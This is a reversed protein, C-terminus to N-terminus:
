TSIADLLERTYDRAILEAAHHCVANKAETLREPSEILSVLIGRLEDWNGPEFLWGTEGERVLEPVGGIRSAVVPLSHAIAEYIVSPSNEYCLTPLILCDVSRLMETLKERKQWGLFRIHPAKKNEEIMKRMLPGIGAVSLRCQEASLGRILAVLRDVGKSPVLQGIFVFHLPRKTEHLKESSAAFRFPNQLVKKEADRFFGKRAYFDLLFRSPSVVISTKKFLLRLIAEYGFWRAARHSIHKEEGYLILGSPTSLQVDHVVHVHRIRMYRLVLPTLFGFGMLNHTVVTDPKERRLISILVCASHVNFIDLVHWFCRVLISHRFDSTYFYFNVPYFRIVRINHQYYEHPLLSRIGTFPQASVVLVQQLHERLGEAMTQAVIEAGGRVFPPYLNTILIIKM